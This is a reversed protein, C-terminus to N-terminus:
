LAPWAAYRKLGYLLPTRASQEVARIVTGFMVVHDGASQAHSVLCDASVRADEPFSPGGDSADAEWRIRDFRDPQGSAFLRAAAEADAHLLNVTFRARQLIADLTPSGNRICVLLTPPKLSVSCISTCTMGRPRGALDFATVVAVGTPFGAMMARFDVLTVEPVREGRLTM